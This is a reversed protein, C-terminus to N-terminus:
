KTRELILSRLLDPPGFAGSKSVVAVGDWKGGVMVSCPVGPVLRGQVLLGTAGVADCLSHLTEGGSVV